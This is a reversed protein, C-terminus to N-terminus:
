LKFKETRVTHIKQSAQSLVNEIHLFFKQTM